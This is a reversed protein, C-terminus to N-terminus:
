ELALRFSGAHHFDPKAAPHHLAWYSLEGQADEVVASLGISLRAGELGLHDLHIVGDLELKGNALRVNLQPDLRADSLPGGDRYAAFAHAAWEGSPAFNFEHYGPMGERAIFIEFCTHQWLKGESRSKLPIRLRTFDGELVYGVRLSGAGQRQVRASVARVGPASGAPHCALVNLRDPHL